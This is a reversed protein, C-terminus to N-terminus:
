KFKYKRFFPRTKIAEEVRDFGFERKESLSRNYELDNRHDIRANDSVTWARALSCAFLFFGLGFVLIGFSILDEM